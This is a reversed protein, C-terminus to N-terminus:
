ISLRVITAPHKKDCALGTNNILKINSKIAACATPWPATIQTNIESIKGLLILAVPWDKPALTCQTNAAIMVSIVGTNRSSLFPIKLSLGQGINANKAKIITKCNTQTSVLIGSVMPTDSSSKSDLSTGSSTCLTAKGSGLYQNSNM